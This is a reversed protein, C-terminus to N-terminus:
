AQTRHTRHYVLWIAVGGGLLSAWMSGIAVGAVPNAQHAGYEPLTSKLALM